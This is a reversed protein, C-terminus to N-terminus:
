PRGAPRQRSSKESIQAIPDRAHGVTHKDEIEAGLHRLQDRPPHAFAADIALDKGEVAVFRPDAGEFWAGDDQGAARGRHDGRIGRARGRGHEIEAHRNQADAIALLREAGLEATLDLGRVMLLEAASKELDGIGAAEGLPQPRLALTVLHPHAVAVPHHAQGLAEAHGAGGFARRTGDDGVVCPAEVAHHEM